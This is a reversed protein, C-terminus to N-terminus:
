ARMAVVLVDLRVEGETFVPNSIHTLCIGMQGETRVYTSVDLVRGGHRPNTLL